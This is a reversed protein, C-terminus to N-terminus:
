IIRLQHVVAISPIMSGLLGGLGVFWIFGNTNINKKEADQSRSYEITSMSICGNKEDDADVDSHHCSPIPSLPLFRKTLSVSDWTM